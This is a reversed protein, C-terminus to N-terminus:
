FPYGLQIERSLIDAIIQSGEDSPHLGDYTMLVAEEPYPYPDAAPNFEPLDRYEEYPLDRIEGSKIVRKFRVANEPTFGCLTHLDIPIINRGRVCTFIAMAVDKLWLGNEPRDSGHAHNEPDFLYVFEGREVPNLVFVPADPSVSRICEILIRLNGLITGSVGNQFDAETGLPTHRSFWDNTGLLITYFNAAPLEPALWDSTASGNIGLNILRVGEPLQELTRTLYGKHLRHGTENLHSDLYTFSDGIACWSIPNQQTNTNM